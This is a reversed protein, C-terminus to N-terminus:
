QFFNPPVDSPWRNTHAFNFPSDRHDDIAKIAAKGPANSTKDVNTTPKTIMAAVGADTPPAKIVDGVEFKQGAMTGICQRDIWRYNGRWVLRWTVHALPQIVGAENRVVFATLFSVERSARYLFNVADSRKNQRALPIKGVPHDDMDTVLSVIGGPKKLVNPPRLNTFPMVNKGFLDAVSDLTYEYAFRAPFVPPTAYNVAMSGEASRQGAYVSQAVLLKSLQIFHFSLKALSDSPDLKVEVLGIINIASTEGENYTRVQGIIPGANRTLHLLMSKGDVSVDTEPIAGEKDVTIKVSDTNIQIARRIVGRTDRM